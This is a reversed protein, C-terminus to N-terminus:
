TRQQCSGLTLSKFVSNPLCRKVARTGQEETYQMFAQGFVFVTPPPEWGAETRSVLGSAGLGKNRSGRVCPCNSQCGQTRFLIANLSYEMLMKGKTHMHIHICVHTPWLNVHPTKRLYLGM